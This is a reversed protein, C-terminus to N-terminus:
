GIDNYKGPGFIRDFTDYTSDQVADRADERNGLLRCSFGYLKDQLPLVQKKFADLEM